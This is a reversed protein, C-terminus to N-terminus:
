KIRGYEKMQAKIIDVMKKVRPSKKATEDWVTQAAAYARAKDAESWNVPLYGNFLDGQKGLSTLKRYTYEERNWNCISHNWAALPVVETLINRLDEPLKSLSKQNILFSIGPPITTPPDNVVYKTVENLKALEGEMSTFLLADVTGLKAAMYTETGPVSVPSAGFAKLWDAATGWARFKKGKFTDPSTPEFNTYWTYRDNDPCNAVWLGKEAYAEKIISQLGWEYLADWYEYPTQWTYVLGVECLAEPIVGSWASGFGHWMVDITGAMIADFEQGPPVISGATAIEVKLRGSTARNVVDAIYLGRSGSGWYGFNKFRDPPTGILYM